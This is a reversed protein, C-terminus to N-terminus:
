ATLVRLGRLAESRSRFISLHGALGTVQFPRLVRETPCVLVLGGDRGTVRRLTNLLVGIGTSDMFTVLSLDVVLRTKGEAVLGLLRRGLRPATLADIEGRPEVVHTRDDVPEDRLGFDLPAGM